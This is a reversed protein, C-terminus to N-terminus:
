SVCDWVDKETEPRDDYADAVTKYVQRFLVISRDEAAYEVTTQNALLGKTKVPRLRQTEILWSRFSLEWSSLSREV